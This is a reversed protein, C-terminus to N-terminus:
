LKPIRILPLRAVPTRIAKPIARIGIVGAAASFTIGELAQLTHFWFTTEWSLVYVQMFDPLFNIQLLPTTTFGVSVEEDVEV